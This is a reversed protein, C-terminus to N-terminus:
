PPLRSRDFLIRDRLAPVAFVDPPRLREHHRCWDDFTGRRSAEALADLIEGREAVLAEIADRAVAAISQVAPHATEPSWAHDYHRLAEGPRGNVFHGDAIALAARALKDARMFEYPAAAPSRPVDLSRAHREALDPQGRELLDEVTALAAGLHPDRPIVYEVIPDQRLATERGAAQAAVADLRLPQVTPRTPERDDPPM